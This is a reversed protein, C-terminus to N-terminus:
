NLIKKTQVKILEVSPQDFPNVKLANGLLITELVFFCFLEGMSSEDKKLIEFSRFPIRKLKFIKQTAIKQASKIKSLSKSRLYKKQNLVFKGSLTDSFKDHTEFFTFFNKKPGDLYLQLLSHNDKPMTSVIPFLGKHKKGLSEAILQQYWKFLNDATEDYNLIVSNNYGRKILQVTYDVNLVLNKLFNKNKILDDFRKFKMPNLGMLEAPLMGVESLISYRGGIYNRHEFVEDKLKNALIKLYSDKKETIFINKKALKYKQLVHFNSITELTDGSKSIIINLGKKKLNLQSNLNNIFTFKKKIKKNLFQYIAESGLISGGMGLLNYNQFKKLKKIDKTKYSYKYKKSFSKLVPYKDTFKDIEIKKLKKNILNQKKENKFNIFKLNRSLM